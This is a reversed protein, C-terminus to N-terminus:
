RSLERLTAETAELWQPEARRAQAVARRAAERAAGRQGRAQRLQALNNWLVASEAQRLRAELLREAERGQGADALAQATGVVLSVRTPWRETASRWAVVRDSVPAGARDLGVLARLAAEEEVQPPWEGPRHVSCAWYGSRAWVHDLPTAAWAVDAQEGSHLWVQGTDLDYGTLVAYHWRPLVPLSLNFLLVVPTGAAVTACVAVLSPPLEVAVRGWARSGALMETQLSGERGPLYVRPALEAPTTARGAASLASALAAPGCLRDDGAFFPVDRLRMRRPLGPPLRDSLQTWAAPRSWTACGALGGILATLATRRHM